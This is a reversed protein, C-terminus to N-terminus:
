DRIVWGHIVAQGRSNISREWEAADFDHSKLEGNQSTFQPNSLRDASRLTPRGRRVYLAHTEGGPLLM